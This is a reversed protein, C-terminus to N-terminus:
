GLATAPTDYRSTVPVLRRVPPPAPPDNGWLAGFGSCGSSGILIAAAGLRLLRLAALRKMHTGRSAFVFIPNSLIIPLFRPIPNVRFPPFTRRRAFLPLTQPASTHGVGGPGPLDGGANPQDAPVHGRRHAAPPCQDHAADLAHQRRLVAIRALGGRLAGDHSDDVAREAPGRGHTPLLG